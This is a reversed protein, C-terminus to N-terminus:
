ANRRKVIIVVVAIFVAVILAVIGGIILYSILDNSDSGPDPNPNPNPKPNPTPNLSAGAVTVTVEKTSTVDPVGEAKSIVKFAYVGADEATVGQIVLKENTQGKIAVGDKYWQYTNDDSFVEVIEATIELDDGENLSIESEKFSIVAKKIQKIEKGVGGSVVTTLGKAQENELVKQNVFSVEVTTQADLDEYALELTMENADGVYVKNGVKVSEIVKGANAKINVTQKEGEKVKFLNSNVGNINAYATGGNSSAIIVTKENNVATEDGKVAVIAFPSFSKVLIILGLPTVTVELEEVDVVNNQADRIFHYAKFTVDKMSDDYTFGEPFGIGIRVGQGTQISVGKCITLSINYTFSEFGGNEVDGQKMDLADGILDNMQSNQKSSPSTVVLALRSKTNSLDTGDSTTWGETSLDGSEVLQPQAYVNWHFGNAKYCCADSPYGAAYEIDNVQKESNEGVLNFSFYYMINDHAYERSPTFKFSISGGRIFNTNDGEGRDWKLTSLDVVKELVVANTGKVFDGTARMGAVAMKIESDGDKLKLYQDYEVRIDYSYGIELKGWSSPTAKVIFPSPKYGPDGYLTKILGSRAIFMTPEGLFTTMEAIQDLTYEDRHEYDYPRPAVTTVAFEYGSPKSSDRMVTYGGGEPGGTDYDDILGKYMDPIPNVYAWTSQLSYLMPDNEYKGDSLDGGARLIQEPLYHGEYRIVLYVGKAAAQAYSCWEGYGTGNGYADKEEVFVSVKITTSSLDAGYPEQEVWIMAGHETSIESGLNSYSLQPYTFPYEAESKYKSTAHQTNMLSYGKLFYDETYANGLGTLLVGTAGSRRNIDDFTQDVAYWEGNLEVYCWMHLEEKDEAHRYVGNILVCPVGLKDMVAKFARSYGECLAEGQDKDLFKNQTGDDHKAVFVGYPTRVHGENGPTCTSELKYITNEAIWSHAYQIRAVTTAIEEGYANIQAESPKASKAASVVADLAANYKDIAAIVSEKSDFGKTYYTDDRGAGLFAHYVKDSDQTVRLSLYEFDVYFIENYDTYFADRAAGLVKLIKQDGNAFAELQAQTVHGNATLDYDDGAIFIGQSNMAEMARYFQKQEEGLQDYFYHSVDTKDEAASVKRGTGINIGFALLAALMVCALLAIISKRSIIKM